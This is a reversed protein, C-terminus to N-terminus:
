VATENGLKRETIGNKCEVLRFDVRYDDQDKVLAAISEKIEIAAKSDTTTFVTTIVCGQKNNKEM